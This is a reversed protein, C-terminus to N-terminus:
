RFVRPFTYSVKSRPFKSQFFKFFIASGMGVDGSGHEGVDGGGGGGCEGQIASAASGGARPGWPV